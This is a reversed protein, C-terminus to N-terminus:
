LRVPSDAGDVAEKLSVVGELSPKSSNAAVLLITLAHFLSLSRFTTSLSAQRQVFLCICTCVEIRLLLPFLSM